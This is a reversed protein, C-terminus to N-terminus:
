NKALAIADDLSWASPEAVLRQYADAGLAAQAATL